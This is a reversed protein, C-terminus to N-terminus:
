PLYGLARLAAKEEETLPNPADDSTRPRPLSELIKKLDAPAPRPTRELRDDPGFYRASGTDRNLILTGSDSRVSLLDGTWLSGEAISYPAAKGGLPRGPLADALAIGAFELLTPAVDMQRVREGVVRGRPGNPRRVILPVHLLERYHSHGHEFGGHDWFEEGHDGVAVILADDWRGMEELGERMLEFQEDIFRLEGDYRAILAARQEPSLPLTGDRIEQVQGASGFGTPVRSSPGSEFLTDYPAPPDYTLHADFYHVVLFVPDRGLGRLWSLAADTTARADRHGLNTPNTNAFDYHEFGRDLSSIRPNCWVVNIIAGTRYGKQAFREALTPVSERIGYIGDGTRGAGHRHPPEGTLLTAISPLTWNSQAFALEYREGELALRDLNPTTEREYGYSSLHDARTTDLIVLVVDPRREEPAGCGASELLLTSLVLVPILRIARIM